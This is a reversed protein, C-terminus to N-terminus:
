FSMTLGFTVPVIYKDGTTETRPNMGREDWTMGEPHLSYFPFDARVKATMRGRHTRFVQVGAEAYAGPGWHSDELYVYRPPDRLESYSLHLMSLGGGVFPSTDKRSFYYRGGTAVTFMDVTEDGNSAHAFRLEAPIAFDPADYAFGLTFGAGTGPGQGAGMALAGFEFKRSGSRTVLKRGESEVLNDVLRTEEVPKGLVLAEALRRGATPVEGFGDLLLSRSEATGTRGVTLVLSKGLPRLSVAYAGRSGSAAALEGCVIDVATAADSPPLGSVDGATCAFGQAEAAAPGMAAGVALAFLTVGLRRGM